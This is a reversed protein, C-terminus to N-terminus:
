VHFTFFFSPKFFRLHVMEELWDSCVYRKGALWFVITVHRKERRKERKTRTAHKGASVGPQLKKGQLRIPQNVLSVIPGIVALSVITERTTIPGHAKAHLLM